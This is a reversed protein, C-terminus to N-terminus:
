CNDYRCNKRNQYRDSDKQQQDLQEGHRKDHAEDEGSIKASLFFDPPNMQAQAASGGLLLITALLILTGLQLMRNM